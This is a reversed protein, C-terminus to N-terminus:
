SNELLFYMSNAMEWIFPQRCYYLASHTSEHPKKQNETGLFYMTTTRCDRDNISFRHKTKLPNHTLLDHETRNIM